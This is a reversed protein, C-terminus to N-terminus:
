RTTRKAAVVEKARFMSDPEPAAEAIHNHLYRTLLFPMIVSELMNTRVEVPFALVLYPMAIDITPVENLHVSTVQRM